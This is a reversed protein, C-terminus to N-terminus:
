TRIRWLIITRLQDGSVAYCRDPSLMVARVAKEHGRLVMLERCTRVDWVWVTGDSLGTLLQDGSKSSAVSFMHGGTVTVASVKTKQRLNWIDWAFVGALIAASGDHSFQGCYNHHGNDIHSYNGTSTDWFTTKTTVGNSM